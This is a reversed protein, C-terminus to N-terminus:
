AQIPACAVHMQPMRLAMQLYKTAKVSTASTMRQGGGAFVRHRPQSGTEFVVM